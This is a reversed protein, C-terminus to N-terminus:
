ALRDQQALDGKARCRPYVREHSFGFGDFGYPRQEHVQLVGLIVQMVPDVFEGALSFVPLTPCLATAGRPVPWTSNVDALARVTPLELLHKALV